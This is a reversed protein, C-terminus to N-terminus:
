SDRQAVEAFFQMAIKAHAPNYNDPDYRDPDSKYAGDQPVQCGAHFHNWEPILLNGPSARAEEESTGTERNFHFFVIADGTVPHIGFRRSPRLHKESELLEACANVVSSAPDGDSFLKPDAKDWHTGYEPMASQVRRGLDDLEGVTPFVTGGGGAQPTQLYALVTLYRHKAGNRDHHFPQVPAGKFTYAVQVQKPERLGTLAQLRAGFQLFEKNNNDIVKRAQSKESWSRNFAVRLGGSQSTAVLETRSMHEAELLSQGATWAHPREAGSGNGVVEVHPLLAQGM